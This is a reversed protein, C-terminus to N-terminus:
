PGVQGPVDGAGTHAPSTGADVKKSSGDKATQHLTDHLYVRPDSFGAKDALESLRKSAKAWVQAPDAKTDSVIATLQKDGTKKALERMEAVRETAYAEAQAHVKQQIAAADLGKAQLAAQERQLQETPSTYAGDTRAGAVPLKGGATAGAKLWDLVHSYGAATAEAHLEPMLQESVARWQEAATAKPDVSVHSTDVGAKKLLDLRSSAYQETTPKGAAAANDIPDMGAIM